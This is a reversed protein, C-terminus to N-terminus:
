VGLDDILGRWDEDKKEETASKVVRYGVWIVFMVGAASIVTLIATNLAPPPPQASVRVFVSDSTSSEDVDYVVLTVNHVGPDLNEANYEIQSGNWQAQEVLSDNLYIEYRSPADSSPSWIIVQGSEGETFELDRPTTVSPAPIPDVRVAVDDYASNEDLDYLTIRINHTGIDFGDLSLTITTTNWEGQQIVTANDEITYWDPHADYTNWSVALGEDRHVLFVDDPSNVTPIELELVVWVMVSDTATRSAIDMVIMTFNYKGWPLGSINVYIESGDWPGEIFLSGNQLVTYSLPNEDTPHWLIFGTGPVETYTLDEPSDITPPENYIVTVMVSDSVYNFSEDLLLITFNYEDISLGDIDIILITGNWFGDEYLSEDFWVEYWHPYLDSGIWVITNGGIEEQYIIDAPHNIEPPTTDVVTVWLTGSASNGSSDLVVLTVNHSGVDFGDVSINLNSGDWPGTDEELSNVLVIYSEPNLDTVNWITFHGETGAEYELDSPASIEPPTTDTVTVMVTNTVSNNGIDFVQITFNWIGLSLGDVSAVIQSGNWTGSQYGSNNQLIEYYSPFLDSPTWVIWYGSDGCEYEIPPPNNITPPTTETVTVIVTDAAWNGGLDNVILTLNSIGPELEDLNVTIESGNWLGEDNILGDIRIVYWHPYTDSPSWTVNNGFSGGEFSIDNPSDIFPAIDDLAEVIVTDANQNGAGDFVQLTINHVGPILSALDFAISGNFWFGSSIESSNDLISYNFPFTDFASWVIPDRVEGADMIVDGPSDVLPSISDVLETPYDDQSM